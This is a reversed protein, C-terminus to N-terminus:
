GIFKRMANDILEVAKDVVAQDEPVLNYLPERVGGLDLGERRRLIEKIVAYLNGKAACMAYIIEDAANQIPLAEATKGARILEDMKLFLEPMAGYTGGIGGDAGMVRGSIFQEDPGNFVVFGEGGEAKFMQIDQVPMSSNKVSRFLM